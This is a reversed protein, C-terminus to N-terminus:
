GQSRQATEPKTMRERSRSAWETEGYQDLVRQWTAQAAKANGLKDYCEGARFLSEAAVDKYRSFLSAGRNYEAVAAKPGEKLFLAEARVLQARGGYWGNAPLAAEAATSRAADFDGQMLRALAAGVRAQIVLKPDTSAASKLVAEFQELAPKDQELELYAEGARIRSEAALESKPFRTVVVMFAKAADEHAKKERLMWGLQYAAPAAASTDSAAATQFRERALDLKGEKRAAEGLRYAADAALPHAPYNELLKAFLPLAQSPEKREVYGWARAYLAAPAASSKPYKAILEDLLPTAEEPKNGDSLLRGLSLLVAPATEEDPGMERATRYFSVAATMDGAREFTGAAEFATRAVLDPSAGDTRMASLEREVEPAKKQVAAIRALGGHAKLRSVRDPRSELVQRYLKSAQDLKGASLQKAAEDLTGDSAVVVGRYRQSIVKELAEAQADQKTDRYYNLLTRAVQPAAPSTPYQDLVEKLATAGEPQKLQLQARGQAALAVARVEAPLEKKALLPTTRALAGAADGQEVRFQAVYAGALDASAGGREAIASLEMEAAAADGRKLLTLGLALQAEDRVVPEPAEAMVSRLLNVAAATDGASNRIEAVRVRGLQSWRGTTKDAGLRTFNEAAQGLQNEQQYSQALTYWAEGAVKRDVSAILKQYRTRAEAVNKEALYTDAMRLEVEPGIGAETFVVVAAQYAQRAVGYNGRAVAVKGLGMQARPASPSDLYEKLVRRYEFEAEDPKDLALFADGAKLGAEPAFPQRWYKQSVNHLTVAAESYNGALRYAEGVMFAARPADPHTPWKDARGYVRAAETFKGLRVLADGYYLTALPGQRPDQGTMEFVEALAEVAKADQKLALRARGLGILAESKVDPAPQEALVAELVKAAADPKDLTLLTDGLALRAEQVKNNKPFTAIFKELAPAAETYKKQMRLQLAANLEPDGPDQARVPAVGVCLTTALVLEWRVKRM